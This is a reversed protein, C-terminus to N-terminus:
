ASRTATGSPGPRRGPRGGAVPRGGGGRGDAAGPAGVRGHRAPQPDGGIPAGALAVATGAPVMPASGRGGSSGHGAGAHGDQQAVEEVPEVPQDTGHRRGERHRHADVRGPPAAGASAASRGPVVVAGPTALSSPPRRRREARSRQVAARRSPRAPGRRWRCRCWSWGGPRRGPRGGVVPKSTTAWSFSTTRRPDPDPSMFSSGGSAMSRPTAARWRKRWTASTEPAAMRATAVLATRSASFRSSNTRRARSSAPTSTSTTEPTSSARRMWRPTSCATGTNSRRRRRMSMPPPLM